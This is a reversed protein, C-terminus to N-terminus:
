DPSSHYPSELLELKMVERNQLVSTPNSINRFSLAGYCYFTILKVELTNTRRQRHFNTTTIAWM